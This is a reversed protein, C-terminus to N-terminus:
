PIVEFKVLVVVGNVEIYVGKEDNATGCSIRLLRM